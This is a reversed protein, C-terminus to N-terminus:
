RLLEYCRLLIDLVQTTTKYGECGPREQAAITLGLYCAALSSHRDLSIEM